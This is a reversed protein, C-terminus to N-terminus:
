GAGAASSSGHRGRCRKERARDGEHARDRERLRRKIAADLAKQDLNITTAEGGKIACFAADFGVSRGLYDVVARDFALPERVENALAVPDFIM